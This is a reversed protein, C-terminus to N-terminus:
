PQRVIQLDRLHRYFTVREAPRPRPVGDVTIRLNPGGAQLARGTRLTTPDVTGTPRSRRLLRDIIGGPVPELPSDAVVAAIGPADLMPVLRAGYLGTRPARGGARHNLLTDDDVIVEGTMETAPDACSVTASGAVAVASDDRILPAPHVRGGLALALADVPDTPLGFNAAAPSEPDAPVYGVEVWMRDSRMLRTLVASLAADTGCVVVRLAEEPEQPAREPAGLHDVDPRKAIEDLSPTPDVPLAARAADDLPALDRRGPVDPLELVDLAAIENLGRIDDLVSRNVPLGDSGGCALFLVRM